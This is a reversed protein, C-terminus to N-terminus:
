LGDPDTGAGEPSCYKQIKEDLEQYRAELKVFPDPTEEPTEQAEAPTFSRNQELKDLKDEMRLEREKEADREPKGQERAREGPGHDPVPSSRGGRAGPLPRCASSSPPSTFPWSEERRKRLRIHLTGGGREPHDGPRFEELVELCVMTRLTSEWLDNEKAIKRALSVPIETVDGNHSALYRWM